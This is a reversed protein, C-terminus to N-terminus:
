LWILDPIESIPRARPEMHCVHFHPDNPGEVTGGRGDGLGWDHHNLLLSLWPVALHPLFHCAPMLFLLVRNFACRGERAEGVANGLLSLLEVNMVNIAAM